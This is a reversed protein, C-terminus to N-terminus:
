ILCCLMCVDINSDWMDNLNDKDGKGVRIEKDMNQGNKRWEFGVYDQDKDEGDLFGM